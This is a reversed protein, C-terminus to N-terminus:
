VFLIARQTLYAIVVAMCGGLLTNLLNMWENNVEIDQNKWYAAIHSEAYFGIWAGLMVAPLSNLSITQMIFASAAFILAAAMGCLTGEISIAGPTGPPVIRFAGPMFPNRGYLQGLESSITDSLATALAGCYFIALWFDAGDTLGFMLSALLPVACNALAHKAGRRGHNEQAAGMSTKEHYGLRTAVSAAVFFLVLLLYFDMGGMVFIVTGIVLGGLAGAGSVWGASLAAAALLLNIAMAIGWWNLGATQAQLSFDLPWLLSVALAAAFTVTINDDWPLPLTEFVASFWATFWAVMILHFLSIEPGAWWLFFGGALTAMFGFALFGGLSKQPNWALHALPFRRGAMNSFGDGFALVGWVCAVYDMRDPFLLILMAVMLPYTAIGETLRESEHYIRPAYRPMILINHVFASAALAFAWPAPLFPLLLAFSCAAVHLWQRTTENSRKRM